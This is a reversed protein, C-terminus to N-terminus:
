RRRSRHYLDIFDNVSYHAIAEGIVELPLDDLRRFRVCSKGMDMRKGTARYAQEFDERVAEDAYIGSLYVAMHRKQAALAAYMLPKGNYTDPQIALPIEYTIMGWRMEEEYGAPLRDLIASRVASLAERRDQPLSALYEEVTTADSRM